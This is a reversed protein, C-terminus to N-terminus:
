SLVGIARLEHALREREEQLRRERDSDTELPASRGEEVQRALVSLVDAARQLRRSFSSRHERFPPKGEPEAGRDVVNLIGAVTRMLRFTEEDGFVDALRQDQAFSAELRHVTESNISVGRARAADELAARLPEKMRVGLQVTATKERVVM